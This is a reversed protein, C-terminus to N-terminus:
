GTAAAAVAQGPEDRGIARMVAKLESDLHKLASGSLLSADGSRAEKEVVACLAGLRLAGINLSPSKLAHAEAAIREFDGAAFADTLAALRGPAHAAFLGFIKQLMTDSGGAIARLSNLVAPDLVDAEPEAPASTAPAPVPAAEAAMSEPAAVEPAPAPDPMAAIQVIPPATEPRQTGPQWRALCEALSRMTFPKTLYDDMGAHQWSDAASGAVHATLAVM